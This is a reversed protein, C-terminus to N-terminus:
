CQPATSFWARRSAPDPGTLYGRIKSVPEDVAPAKPVVFASAVAFVPFAIGGAGARDIRDPGLAPRQASRDAPGGGVRSFKGGVPVRPGSM